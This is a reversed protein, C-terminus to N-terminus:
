RRRCANSFFAAASGHPPVFSSIRGNRAASPNLSVPACVRTNRSIRVSMLPATGVVQFFSASVASMQVAQTGTSDVLTLPWNVSGIVALREFSRSRARWDDMEGHAVEIVPLARRDDRMWIVALRDQDAFGFPRLVVAHVVAYIATIAGITTALLCISTATVGRANRLSRLSHRFLDRIM